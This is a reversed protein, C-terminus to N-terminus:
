HTSLKKGISDLEERLDSTRKDLVLQRAPDDNLARLAKLEKSSKELEVLITARRAELATREESSLVPAHSAKPSPLPKPLVPQPQTDPKVPALAADWGKPPVPLQLEIVPPPIPASRERVEKLVWLSVAAATVFVGVSAYIMWSIRPRENGRPKGPSIAHDDSDTDLVTEHLSTSVYAAVSSQRLGTTPVANLLAARFEGTTQFRKAKDRALARGVTAVLDPDFQSPLPPADETAHAVLTANNSGKELPPKGTLMEFLVTGISYVDTQHDIQDTKGAAQEPSAYAPTCLVDGAVTRRESDSDFAIGFDIVKAQGERTILINSPKLDRHVVGKTRAHEIGDLVEMLIPVAIDTPIPGRELVKELSIGPIFEMVM